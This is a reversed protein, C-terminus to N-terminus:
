HRHTHNNKTWGQGNLNVVSSIEIHNNAGRTTIIHIYMPAWSGPGPGFSTAPGFPSPDCPGQAHALTGPVRGGPKPWPRAKRRGVHIHKRM